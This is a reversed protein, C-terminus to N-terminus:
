RDDAALALPPPRAPGRSSRDLEAQAAELSRFSAHDAVALPLPPLVPVPDGASPGPAYEGVSDILQDPRLRALDRGDTDGHRVGAPM